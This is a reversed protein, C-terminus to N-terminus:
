HGLRPEAPHGQKLVHSPGLDARHTNVSLGLQCPRSDEQHAWQQALPRTSRVVLRVAKARFLVVTVVAWCSSALGFCLVLALLLSHPFPVAEFSLATFLQHITTWDIVAHLAGPAPGPM